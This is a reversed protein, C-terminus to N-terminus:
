AEVLHRLAGDFLADLRELGADLDALHVRLVRRGREHLAQLDGLAQAAVLVGFTEEWGPIALDARPDATVQLFLGSPPGGKHLQGTSHLFRPGIGLTTALGLQDRMRGRIGQLREVAQLESPVYALLAFYDGPAALEVLQRIGGEVSVPRDGGLNETEGYLSIGDEAVLPAPAPLSGGRRYAELLSRTADKAAQVDPQDFPDIGLVMGAAATAVEWRVFEAGLDAPDDLDLTLLPHGAETLGEIGDPAEGDLRLVVFARDDGYVEPPGPTEGVVPVVGNGNKGTSEAVLQEIWDGLAVLPPVSLLTLKDRGTRAMGGMFAALLAGPNAAIPDAVKCQELMRRAREWVRNVDIGCLAAPVMGFLSLASYRGGIDAPNAFAARWGHVHAAEALPSGPDTVAAIQAPPFLAQARAAFGATEITTGSKSSVLVLTGDPGPEELLAAVAGPHTSDLVQLQAGEARAAFVTAFVEPALSSGGMGALVVRHLGDDRAAAAFERAEASWAPDGAAADLWGLRQAITDQTTAEASWLSADRAHLQGVADVDALDTLAERVPLLLPLPDTDAAV